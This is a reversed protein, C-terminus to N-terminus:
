IPTARAYSVGGLILIIVMLVVVTFPKKISFETLM